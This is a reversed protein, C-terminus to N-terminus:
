VHPLAALIGRLLAMLRPVLQRGTELVEEHDAEAEADVDDVAMNTIGSLGLVRMGMHCAAMVEPVTSMGCADAGILRLFRVEAPTEFAPGALGCYVGQRLPIGLRDAVERALRRLAPDYAKSMAPFRPGLSDDNPGWLPNHGVMASLGIHDVILMLDGARFSPNLGGAANTVILTTIGLEHMVRVPLAVQHQSFGEYAHIRGQMILIARGELRGIVLRGAHGVVTSPVFHPIESYPIRDAAEVEDALPNLGSGLILWVRPRHATRRLIADAAERYHARTFATTATM